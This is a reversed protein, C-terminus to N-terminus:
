QQQPQVLSTSGSVDVPSQEQLNTNEEQLGYQKKHQLQSVLSKELGQIRTKM